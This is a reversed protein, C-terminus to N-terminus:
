LEIIHSAEVQLSDLRLEHSLVLFKLIELVICLLSIFLVVLVFDLDLLLSVLIGVKAVSSM